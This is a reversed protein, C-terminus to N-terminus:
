RQKAPKEAQPENYLTNLLAIAINRQGERLLLLNPDVPSTTVAQKFMRGWSLIEALVRPGEPTDLFVRRFERYRDQPSYNDLSPLKTVEDILNAM